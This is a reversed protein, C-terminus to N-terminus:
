KAREVPDKSQMLKSATAMMSKTAAEAAAAVAAEGGGVSDEDVGEGEAGKDKEKDGLLESPDRLGQEIEYQRKELSRMRAQQAESQESDDFTFGKGAFGGSAWKAEGKSVKEKFGEAMDELEKPIKQKSQTLAKVLTPAHQEEETSIFTYATGKRGARGTRGVRHVYDELHNPCSYNIVCVLDPVDLGRGAVSTAVMLTCVKNKFDSITYERDTQDKGGHLSLGHYGSRALDQFLTDCKQQTDVFVLINGREYWVGLLQLLRMFKDDEDRIEVHQTIDSSAISRGGVIIELPLKLVKRALQEVTKPFTASFLVTQRDPRINQMIMKIQPEFGMDFMRDAEDMVVYSVRSLSVLRGAQMTLIDIMRGPTCVVIDAGRKLDAIQDAVGAGGYVATVRLGLAKTFRRSKQNKYFILRRPAWVCG